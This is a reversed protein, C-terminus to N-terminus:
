CLKKGGGTQSEAIHEEEGRRYPIWKEGLVLTGGRLKVVGRRTLIDKRRRKAGGCSKPAMLVTHAWFNEWDEPCCGERTKLFWSQLIIGRLGTNLGGTTFFVRGLTFTIPWM